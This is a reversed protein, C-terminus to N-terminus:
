PRQWVQDAVRLMNEGMVGAPRLRELPSFGAQPHRCAHAEPHIM